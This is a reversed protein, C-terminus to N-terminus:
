DRGEPAQAKIPRTPDARRPGLYTVQAPGLKERILDVWAALQPEAARNRQAKERESITEFKVRFNQHM